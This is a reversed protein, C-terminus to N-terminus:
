PAKEDYADFYDVTAKAVANLESVGADPHAKLPERALAPADSCGIGRLLGWAELALGAAVDHTLAQDHQRATGAVWEVDFSAEDPGYTDVV